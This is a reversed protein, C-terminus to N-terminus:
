EEILKQLTAAQEASLKEAAIGNAALPKVKKEAATYIDNPATNTFITAVRQEASLSKVLQRGLDEVGALVRLGARPGAKVEAPNTGMFNPTSAIEGGKGLTFNSSFHHGEIRWGWNAGVGPTGFISVYYLEPDRVMRPNAKELERLIEELSMITTAAVYGKQSLGSKLLALALERQPRSMEKIPLGKRAKPIFHWDRRAPIDYAMVAKTRQTEDLTALWANAVKTM